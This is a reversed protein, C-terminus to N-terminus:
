GKGYVLPNNKLFCHINTARFSGNSVCLCLRESEALEDASLILNIMKFTVHHTVYKSNCEYIGTAIREPLRRYQYGFLPDLDGNPIYAKGEMTLQWCRCNERDKSFVLINQIWWLKVLQFKSVFNFSSRILNLRKSSPAVYTRRNTSNWLSCFSSVIESPSPIAGTVNCM